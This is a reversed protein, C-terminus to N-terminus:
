YIITVDLGEQENVEDIVRCIMERDSIEDLMQRKHNVREEPTMREFFNHLEMEPFPEQGPNHEM